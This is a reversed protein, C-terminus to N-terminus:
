YSGTGAHFVWVQCNSQQNNKPEDVDRNKSVSKPEVRSCPRTPNLSNAGDCCQRNCNENHTSLVLVRCGQNCSSVAQSHFAACVSYRHDHCVGIPLDPLRQCLYQLSNCIIVDDLRAGGKYRRFVEHSVHVPIEYRDRQMFQTRSIHGVADQSDNLYSRYDHRRGFKVQGSFLESIQLSQYDGEILFSLNRLRKEFFPDFFCSPSSGSTSMGSGM